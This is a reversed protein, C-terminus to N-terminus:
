NFLTENEKLWDIVIDEPLSPNQADVFLPTTLINVEKNKLISIIQKAANCYQDYCSDGLGIILANIDSLSVETNTLEKIFTSLNNPIDGAGHTSTCIIWLSSPTLESLIPSLHTSCSLNLSNIYTEIEDGVYEATGTETGIIINIM